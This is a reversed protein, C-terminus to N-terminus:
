QGRKRHIGNELGRKNDEDRQRRSYIRRVAKLEAATNVGFGETYDDIRVAEVRGGRSKISRICDPLYYEMQVNNATLTLLSDFLPGARFCYLGVNIEKIGRVEGDADREEVIKLFSRNRSRVIRGYGRADPVDATAFTVANSHRAHLGLLRKV